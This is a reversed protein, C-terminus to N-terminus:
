PRAAFPSASVERNPQGRESGPSTVYDTPMCTPQSRMHLVFLALGYMGPTANGTKGHMGIQNGPSTYLLLKAIAM